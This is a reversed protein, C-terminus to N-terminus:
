REVVGRLVQATADSHTWTLIVSTGSRPARLDTVPAPARRAHRQAGAALRPGGVPSDLLVPVFRSRLLRVASGVLHLGGRSIFWSSM